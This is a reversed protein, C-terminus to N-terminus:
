SLLQFAQAVAIGGVAIGLGDKVGILLVSRIAQGVEIPLEGDGDPIGAVAGEEQRPVTEPDPGDEVGHFVANKDEPGLDLGDQRSWTDGGCRVEHGQVLNEGEPTGKRGSREELVDLFDRSSVPHENLLSPNRHLRVPLQGKGLLALRRDPGSLSVHLLEPFEENVGRLDTEPRVHGHAGVQAPPKIGGGDGGDDAVERGIGQLREGDGERIRGEVFADVLAAHGLGQTRVVMHHVGGMRIDAPGEGVHNPM